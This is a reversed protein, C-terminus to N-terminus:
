HRCLRQLELKEADVTGSDACDVPCPKSTADKQLQVNPDQNEEVEFRVMREKKVPSPPPPSVRPADVGELIIKYRSKADSLGTQGHFSPVAPAQRVPHKPKTQVGSQLGPLKIDASLDRQRSVAELDASNGNTKGEAVTENGRFSASSSVLPRQGVPPQPVATLVTRVQDRAQVQSQDNKSVQSAPDNILKVTVDSIQGVSSRSSIWM